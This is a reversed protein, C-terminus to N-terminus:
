KRQNRKLWVIIVVLVTVTVLLVPFMKKRTKEWWSLEREVPYPVKTTDTRMIYMTDNRIKNKYLYKMVVKETYVTDENKWRNVFISDHVYISDINWRNVYVSDIKVTEMPVYRTAKCGCLLTIIVCAVLGWFLGKLRDMDM